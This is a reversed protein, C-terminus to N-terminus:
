SNNFGGEIVNEDDNEHNKNANDDDKNGEEGTECDGLEVLFDVVVGYKPPEPIASPEPIPERVDPLTLTENMM